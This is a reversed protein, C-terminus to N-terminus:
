PPRRARANGVAYIRAAKQAPRLPSCESEHQEAAKPYTRALLTTPIRGRSM